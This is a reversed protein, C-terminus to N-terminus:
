KEVQEKLQPYKLLLPQCKDEPINPRYTKFIYAGVIFGANAEIHRIFYDTFNSRVDDASWEPHKSISSIFEDLGLLFDQLRDNLGTGSTCIRDGLLATINGNEIVVPLCYPMISDPIQVSLVRIYPVAVDVSDAFEFKGNKVVTSDYRIANSQMDTLYVTKGEFRSDKAMGYIRYGPSPSCAAMVVMCLILVSLFLVHKKM